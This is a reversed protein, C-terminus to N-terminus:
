KQGEDPPPDPPRYTWFFTGTSFAFFGFVVLATDVSVNLLYRVLLFAAAGAALGGMVAKFKRRFEPTGEERIDM